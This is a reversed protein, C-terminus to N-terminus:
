KAVFGHQVMKGTPGQTWYLGVVMGSDNLDDANTSVAGPVSVTCYNGPATQMWGWSNPSSGQEIYWGVLQATSNMGQTTAQFTGPITFHAFTGNASSTPNPYPPPTFNPTFVFDVGAIQGADNIAEPTDPNEGNGSETFGSRSGDPNRIFSDNCCGVLDGYGVVVGASNIGTVFNNSLPQFTTFKGNDYIFRLQYTGAAGSVTTGYDGAILGNSAIASLETGSHPQSTDTLAGPADVTTLQGNAFIFGHGLGKQDNYGGVFTGSNNVGNIKTNVANAVDFSSYHLPCLPPAGAPPPAPTGTIPM